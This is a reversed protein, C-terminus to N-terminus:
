PLHFWNYQNSFAPWDTAIEVVFMILIMSALTAFKTATRFRRLLQDLGYVFLLLFPILVGLLLRGERFFPHARSPNSCGHFDYIVSLLAFFGLMALFCALSFWLVQRQLGNANARPSLAPLAMGIFIFSILTYVVATGPLVMPQAPRQYFWWFEGQWFTSLQGTLYTWVGYPSYIPHHWWDGFPKITWGMYDMNFKAGTFDGYHFKCWLSWGIVPPVACGLFALLAPLAARLNKHRLSQFLVVAATVALLPLNSAKSFYTAAFALGTAAGLSASPTQDRLWKLICIFTTGFCISSISDNSISYFATQPMFAMLAPVGLCLFPNEPFILRAAVYSLWVLTVVQIINLFRLWYMLRGPGLALCKGIDWWAGALAYYLPMQADEYNMATQWGASNLALDKRMEEVPETWPPPPVPGISPGLYACSCFLALYVSAEKSTHELGLPVHGHSYSVVLDFHAPEDVNNFFPFAASFIFVHIAAAVCLLLVIKKEM